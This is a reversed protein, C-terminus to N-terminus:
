LTSMIVSLNRCKRKRLQPYELHHFTSGTSRQLKQPSFLLPTIQTVEGIEWRWGVTDVEGSKRWGHGGHGGCWTTGRLQIMFSRKFERRGYRVIEQVASINCFKTGGRDPVLVSIVLASGWYERTIIPTPVIVYSINAITQLKCMQSNTTVLLSNSILLHRLCQCPCLIKCHRLLRPSVAIGVVCVTIYDPSLRIPALAFSLCGLWYSAMFFAFEGCSLCM